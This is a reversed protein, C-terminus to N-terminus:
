EAGKIADTDETDDTDDTYQMEDGALRDLEADSMESLDKATGSVQLRSKPTYDGIMELFLKRDNFSKYDPQAAMEALAKLVDSRHDWLARSQMMSVITEISPYKRRWNSIVRPSTLGLVKEALDKLTEPQRGIRPSSAWAMYAAVRWPWGQGILLLYDEFWGPHEFPAVHAGTADGKELAVRAAESIMRAKEPTIQREQADEEVEDLGPLEFRLQLEDWPRLSM